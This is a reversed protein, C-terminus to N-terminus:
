MWHSSATRSVPPLTRNDPDPRATQWADQVMGVRRMRRYIYAVQCPSQLEHSPLPAGPCYDTSSRPIQVCSFLNRLASVASVHQSQELLATEM